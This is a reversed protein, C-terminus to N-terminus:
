KVEGKVAALIEDLEEAERKAIRARTEVIEEPTLDRFSTEEFAELLHPAVHKYM